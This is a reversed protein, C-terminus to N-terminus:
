GGVASLDRWLWLVVTAPRARPAPPAPYRQLHATLRRTHGAGWVHAEQGPRRWGPPGPWGRRGAADLITLAYGTRRQPAGGQLPTVTVSLHNWCYAMDGSVRVEQVESSPEIHVQGLSAMLSLLLPLDGAATARQWTAILERIAQEDAQM